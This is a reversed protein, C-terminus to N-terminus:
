HSHIAWRLYSNSRWNRTAFFDQKNSIQDFAQQALIKKCGGVRANVAYGIALLYQLRDKYKNSRYYEAQTVTIEETHTEIYQLVYQASQGAQIGKASYYRKDGDTNAAQSSWIYAIASWYYKAIQGVADLDSDNISQLADALSPLQDMLQADANAVADHASKTEATSRKRNDPLALETDPDNATVNYVKQTLENVHDFVTEVKAQHVAPHQGQYIKVICFGTLLILIPIVLAITWWFGSTHINVVDARLITILKRVNGRVITKAKEDDKNSYTSM